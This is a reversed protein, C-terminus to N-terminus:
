LFLCFTKTVEIRKHAKCKIENWTTRTVKGSALCTVGLVKVSDVSHVGDPFEEMLHELTHYRAKQRISTRVLCAAATHFLRLFVKSSYINRIFVSVNDAYAAVTVEGQGPLAFVRISTCNQIQQLLPQVCLVFLLSSIRVARGYVVAWLSPILLVAM